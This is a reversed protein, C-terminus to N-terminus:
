SANGASERERARIFEICAEESGYRRRGVKYTRLQQSKILAYLTKRSGLGLRKILGQVDHTLPLM